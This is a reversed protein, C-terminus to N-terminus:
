DPRTTWEPSAARLIMLKWMLIGMRHMYGSAGGGGEKGKEGCGHQSGLLRGRLGGISGFRGIAVCAVDVGLARRV